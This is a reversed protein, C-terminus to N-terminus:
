KSNAMRGRLGSEKLCHVFEGHEIVMIVDFALPDGATLMEDSLDHTSWSSIVLMARRNKGHKASEAVRKSKNTLM